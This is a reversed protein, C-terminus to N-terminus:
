RSLVQRLQEITPAGEPGAPTPYVRCALGGAMGTHPFPDRGDILLTPSGAFATRVADDADGVVELDIPADPDGLDSLARRVRRVMLDTHPCGEIHRVTIRPSSRTGEGPGTM